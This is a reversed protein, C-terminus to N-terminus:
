QSWDVKQHDFDAESLGASTMQFFKGLKTMITQSADWYEVDEVDIKVLSIDSDPKEIQFYEACRDDWLLESKKPDDVKRAKGTISAYRKNAPESIVINVQPNEILSRFILDDKHTFMYVDGTFSQNVNLMPRSRIIHDAGCTTLMWTENEVIFTTAQLIVEDRHSPDQRDATTNPNNSM